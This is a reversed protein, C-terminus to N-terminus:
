NINTMNGLPGIMDGRKRFRLECHPDSTAVRRGQSASWWTCYIFCRDSPRMHRIFYESGYDAWNRVRREGACERDRYSARYAGDPLASADFTLVNDDNSDYLMYGHSWNKNPFTGVLDACPSGNVYLDAFYLTTGSAQLPAPLYDNGDANGCAVALMAIATVIFRRM